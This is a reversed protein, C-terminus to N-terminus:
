RRAGAMSLSASVWDSGKKCRSRMKDAVCCTPIFLMKDHTAAAIAKVAWGTNGTDSLYFIM